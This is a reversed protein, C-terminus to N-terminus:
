RRVSIHLPCTPAGPTTLKPIFRGRGEWAARAIRRAVAEAAAQDGDSTVTITLGCKPLDSYTFGGAVSVNLIPPRCLEQGLAILDANAESAAAVLQEAVAGHRIDTRM